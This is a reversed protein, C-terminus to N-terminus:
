KGSFKLYGVALYVLFRSGLCGLRHVTVPQIAYIPSEPKITYM